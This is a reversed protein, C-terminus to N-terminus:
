TYIPRPARWKRRVRNLMVAYIKHASDHSKIFFLLFAKGFPRGDGSRQLGDIEDFPWM